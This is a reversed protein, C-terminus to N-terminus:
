QQIFEPLESEIRDELEDDLQYFLDMGIIEEVEDVTKAAKKMSQRSENNEYIFGVAWEKGKNLSLVAKFFREPVMIRHDIGIEEHRVGKNYIPGCVIYIRGDEQAWKRCKDELSKWSGGNLSHTQPCMNTMYFCDHMAEESWKMDAAPCMHGRDYGSEKYEYWEVRYTQPVAPDAWFKKSRAVTGETREATLQWASWYPTCYEKNYSLIHGVHEIILGQEKGEMKPIEYRVGDSEQAKANKGGRSQGKEAPLETLVSNEQNENESSGNRFYSFLAVLIAIVLVYIKNM